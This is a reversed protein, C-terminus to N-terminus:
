KRTCNKHYRLQHFLVWVPIGILHGMPKGNFPPLREMDFNVKWQFIQLKAPRWHGSRPSTSPPVTSQSSSLLRCLRQLHTNYIKPYFVQQRVNWRCHITPSYIVLRCLSAFCTVACSPLWLAGARERLMTFEYSAVHDCVENLNAKFSFYQRVSESFIHMYVAVLRFNGMFASFRPQETCDFRRFAIVM